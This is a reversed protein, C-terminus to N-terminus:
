IADEFAASGDFTRDPLFVVFSASLSEVLALPM